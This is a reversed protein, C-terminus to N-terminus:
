AGIVFEGSLVFAGKGDCTKCKRFVCRGGAEDCDCAVAAGKTTKCIMGGGLCRRCDAWVRGDTTSAGKIKAIFVKVKKSERRGGPKLKPLPAGGVRRLESRPPGLAATLMERIRDFATM